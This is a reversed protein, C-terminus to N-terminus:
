TKSRGSGWTHSLISHPPIDDWCGSLSFEGHSKRELLRM